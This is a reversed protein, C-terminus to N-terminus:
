KIAVAYLNLGMQFRKVQFHKFGAKKLHQELSQKTFYQKHDRIEEPDIIKLKFAMLELIPKAATSPTTLVLVGRKRLVRYSEKLNTLPANLHELNALSCVMDAVGDGLPLAYNLDARLIRDGAKVDLGYADYGQEVLARVLRGSGCGMDYITRIKPFFKLTKFIKQYRYWTLFHDM